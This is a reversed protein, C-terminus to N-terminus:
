IGYKKKIRELKLMMPEYSIWLFVGTAIAHILNMSLGTIFYAVVMKFSFNNTGLVGFSIDMIGGYILLTSLVGWITVIIRNPKITAFLVGTFTGILGASLMQFITWPGHGFFINSVFISISGVLFGTEAGFAIASIVVIAILPKFQPLMFFALRGSVAIACLVSIIVIESIKPKRKEFSTYFPIISLFAIILGSFYYNISNKILILAIFPIALFMLFESRLVKTRKKKHKIKINRAFFVGLSLINAIFVIIVHLNSFEFGQSSIVKSLDVCFIAYITTIVFILLCFISKKDIKEEKIQIEDVFSQPKAKKEQVVTGNLAYILDDCTIANEFINRSIKSASTTYFDNNAFFNRPTDECVISGDFFLAVKESYKACFDLDHSVMVITADLKKLIEGIKQKFEADIGKTPEDLLLIKPNTLLIKALAVKQKEGGSLDYPHKELLDAIECTNVVKEIDNSVEKLDEYVTNKIFLANPNQPLFAIKGNTKIKGFNQKLIGSILKLSTSKGVGNGGVISLFEGKKVELSMNKIIDTDDYGFCVDKIKIAIENNENQIDHFKQTKIENESVFDFLWKKSEILTKPCSKASFVSSWVKIHTPFAEFIDHNKISEFVDEFTGDAIKRGNELVIIKNQIPLIEELNHETIIITTGLERNIRSLISIFESTAIPDLQSTPEDLILIEPNVTMVSALNLIQKQGGSLTNVDQNFWTQIGFFSAMEAVRKRIYEKSHGLNELSFALEHWVKDTVIQNDPSQMVFGIKESQERFSLENINKDKYFIEGSKEGFPEISPKLNQLLTSKGSGSKGCIVVFDGQNISININKLVKQGPYSFSLDKIKIIEM